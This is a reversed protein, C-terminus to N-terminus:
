KQDVEKTEVLELNPLIDNSTNVTITEGVGEFKKIMSLNRAVENWDRPYKTKNIADVLMLASNFFIMENVNIDRGYKKRYSDIVSSFIANIKVKKFDMYTINPMNKVKEYAGGVKFGLTTVVEKKYNLENLTLIVKYLDRGNGCLIIISPLLSVAKACSVKYDREDLTFSFVNQAPILNNQLFRDRFVAGYDDTMTLLVVKNVNTSKIHNSIIKFEQEVTPSHRFFLPDVGSLAPHTAHTVFLFRKTKQVPLIALDVTSVISFIAGCKQVELLYNLANLSTKAGGMGDSFVFKIREGNKLMKNENIYEQALTLGTKGTEGM